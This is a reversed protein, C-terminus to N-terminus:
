QDTVIVTGTMGSHINCVYDYEGASEFTHQFTGSTQVESKFEGGDVDHPAAGEWTWTVTDGPVVEIVRPEFANDVVSVETTAVTDETETGGGSNDCAALALAAALVLMATLLKQRMSEFTHCRFPETTPGSSTQGYAQRHIGM